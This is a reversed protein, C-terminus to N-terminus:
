FSRLLTSTKLAPLIRWLSFNAPAQLDTFRNLGSAADTFVSLLTTCVNVYGAEALRVALDVEAFSNPLHHSLGGVQRWTAAAVAFCHPSNAVVPYLARPLIESCDFESLGLHPAIAFDVRAPFYGASAFTPVGDGDRRSKLHMCGVTGIGERLAIRGLTEVTRQDHLIVSNDVFLLVEGSAAAAARNIAESTNLAEQVDIIQGRGPLMQDVAARLQSVQGAHCNAVALILECDAGTLQESVTGLLMGVDVNARLVPAIISTKAASPPAPFIDTQDKPVPFVKLAEDKPEFDQLVIAIPQLYDAAGRAAGASPALPALGPVHAGSYLPQPTGGPFAVLYRRHPFAEDLVIYPGPRQEAGVPLRRSVVAGVTPIGRSPLSLRARGGRVQVPKSRELQARAYDVFSRDGLDRETRLEGNATSLAINFGATLWAGVTPDFIAEAGTAALLDVEVEAITSALEEEKGWGVAEALYADSLRCLDELTGGREGVAAVEAEHLGGRLLSPFPLLDTFVIEGADDRGVFLIPLLPNRVGVTAVTTEGLTLEDVVTLELRGDAQPLPQLVRLSTALPEGAEGAENSMRLRLMRSNAWWLDSVAWGHKAEAARLTRYSALDRVLPNATLLSQVQSGFRVTPSLGGGEGGMLRGLAAVSGAPLLFGKTGEAVGLHKDVDPRKIHRRCQGVRVDGCWLELRLSEDDSGPSWAWGSVHNGRLGDMHLQDAAAEIVSSSGADEQSPRLTPSLIGLLQQKFREFASSGDRVTARTDSPPAASPKALALQQGRGQTSAKRWSLTGYLRICEAGPDERKPDIDPHAWVFARPDFGPHPSRGEKWGYDIYHILPNVGARRVDENAALYFAVDFFPSPNLKQRWGIDHFHVIPVWPRGDAIQELYHDEVFYPTERYQKRVSAVRALARLENFM